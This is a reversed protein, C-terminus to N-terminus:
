KQDGTNNSSSPLVGTEEHHSDTVDDTDKTSGQHSEKWEGVGHDPWSQDSEPEDLLDLNEGLNRRRHEMSVTAATL